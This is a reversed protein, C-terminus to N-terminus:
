LNNAAAWALAGGKRVAERRRKNYERIRKNNQKRITEQQDRLNMADITTAWAEITISSGDTYTTSIRGIYSDPTTTHPDAQLTERTKTETRLAPHKALAALTTHLQDIHTQQDRPTWGEHKRGRHAAPNSRKDAQWYIAQQTHPIDGHPTETLNATLRATPNNM